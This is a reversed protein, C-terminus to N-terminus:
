NVGKNTSQLCIKKQKNTGGTSCSHTHSIIAPLLYTYRAAMQRQEEGNQMYTVIRKLEKKYKQKIQYPYILVTSSVLM